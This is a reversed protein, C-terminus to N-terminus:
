RTARRITEDRLSVNDARLPRYDREVFGLPFEM